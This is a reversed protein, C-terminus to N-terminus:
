CKASTGGIWATMISRATSLIVPPLHLVILSSALSSKQRSNARVKWFERHRIKGRGQVSSIRVNFPPDTFVMTARERGMLKRLDADDKANGCLLHHRDLLWLDGRRSVPEKAVGPLEDSPDQEPDVLDGMLSDIEPTEFGTLEIDLGAEALLPALQRLEIALAARDWGAKETLRNDALLYARREADSLGSVVVVPVLRLGLQRSALWRGHGALILSDEDTIIPAIFGVQKISRAIQILQQKSHTHVNASNLRLKGIAIQTIQSVPMYSGM